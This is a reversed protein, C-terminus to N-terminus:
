SYTRELGISNLIEGSFVHLFVEALVGEEEGYLSNHFLCTRLVEVEEKRLFVEELNGISKLLKFLIDQIVGFRLSLVKNEEFSLQVRHIFNLM